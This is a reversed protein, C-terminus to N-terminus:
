LEPPSPFRGFIYLHRQMLCKHRLQGLPRWAFGFPFRELGLNKVVSECLNVCIFYSYLHILFSATFLVCPHHHPPFFCSEVVFQCSYARIQSSSPLRSNRSDARIRLWPNVCISVSSPPSGFRGSFAAILFQTKRQRYIKCDTFRRHSDPYSEVIRSVERPETGRNGLALFLISMLNELCLIIDMVQRGFRRLAERRTRSGSTM